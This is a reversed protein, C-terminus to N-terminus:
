QPPTLRADGSGDCHHCADGPVARMQGGHDDWDLQFGRGACHGCLDPVRHWQGDHFLCAGGPMEDWGFGWGQAWRELRLKAPLGDFLVVEASIMRPRRGTFVARTVDRILPPADPTAARVTACVIDAATEM